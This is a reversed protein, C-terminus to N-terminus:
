GFVKDEETFRVSEFLKIRPTLSFYKIPIMLNDGNKDLNFLAKQIYYETHMNYNKFKDLYQIDSFIIIDYDYSSIESDFNIYKLKYNILDKLIDIDNDNHILVTINCDLTKNYLDLVKILDTIILYDNYKIKILEKYLNDKNYKEPMDLISLPNSNSSNLLLHLLKINTNNLISFDCDNLEYNNNFYRLLSIHKNVISNIDILINKM